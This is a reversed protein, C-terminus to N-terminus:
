RPNRGTSIVPAGPLCTLIDAASTVCTARRDHILEHCGASMASTVPGPVAMLPRGLDTAHCAAAMTGSRGAAEVIVMGRTLAAIIRNRLLFRVRAPPTGPPSESVVAGHEAIADLLGRHERPYAYDPGCALVAVTLGGAALAGRHAASDIGYAAGSIIVWGRVALVSAIQSAVHTGYATAARAGAVAVSAACLATLSTAGRVWLAYPRARGLDDLQPPWDPDGPCILSIGRQAHAALGADPPGAPLRAQWRALASAARASEAAPLGRVVGSPLSGARIAALVQGPPMAELLAGLLPDAPPALYTLTASAVRAATGARRAAPQPSHGNM